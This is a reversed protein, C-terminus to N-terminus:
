GSSLLKRQLYNPLKKLYYVLLKPYKKLPRLGIAKWKSTYFGTENIYFQQPVQEWNPFSFQPRGKNCVYHFYAIEQIENLFIKGSSFTILESSCLDENLTDEFSISVEGNISAQNVVYTFSSTSFNNKETETWNHCTEDIGEFRPSKILGEYNYIRKYLTNNFDTNKIFFLSGTIRTSRSSIFDVGKDLKEGVFRHLDGFILDCDGYAWYPFESIYNKFIEGYLPKLDCLKYTFPLKYPASPLVNAIATELDDLSLPIFEVNEPCHRPAPLSTFFKINLWQNNACGAFFQPLYEPWKGYYPIILCAKYKM